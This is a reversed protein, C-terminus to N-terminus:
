GGGHRRDRREVIKPCAARVGNSRGKQLRVAVARNDIGTRARREFSKVLLEMSMADAHAIEVGDQKRVNVQVVGSSGTCEHAFIGAEGNIDVLIARRVHNVRGFKEGAGLAEPGVVQLSQEAFNKGNRLLIQADEFAAFCKREARAFEFDDICRAM